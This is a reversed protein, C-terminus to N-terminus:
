LNAFCSPEGQACRLLSWPSPSKQTSDQIIVLIQIHQFSIKEFLPFLTLLCGNTPLFAHVSVGLLDTEVLHTSSFALGSQLLVHAPPPQKKRCFTPLKSCPLLISPPNPPCYSIRLSIHEENGQTILWFAM